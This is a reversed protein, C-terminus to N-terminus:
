NKPFPIDPDPFGNEIKKKIFSQYDILWGPKGQVVIPECFRCPECEPRVRYVNEATAGVSCRCERKHYRTGAKNVYVITSEGNVILPWYDNDFLIDDPVRAMERCSINSTDIESVDPELPQEGANLALRNRHELAEWQKALRNLELLANTRQRAANDREIYARDRAAEAAKRDAESQSLSNSVQKLQRKMGSSKADAIVIVLIVAAIAGYIVYRINAKAANREETIERNDKKLTEIREDLDENTAKLDHVDELADEYKDELNDYKKEM